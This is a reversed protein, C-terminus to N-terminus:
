NEGPNGLTDGKAYYPSAHKPPNKEHGGIKLNRMYSNIYWRNFQKPSVPLVNDGRKIKNGASDFGTIFIEKINSPAVIGDLLATHHEGSLSYSLLPYHSDPFMKQAKAVDTENKLKKPPRLHQPTTLVTLVVDGAHYAFGPDISVPFAPKKVNDMMTRDDSSLGRSVARSAVKAGVIPIYVKLISNKRLTALTNQQSERLHEIRM